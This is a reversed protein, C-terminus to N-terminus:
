YPRSPGIRARGYGRRQPHRAANLEDYLHPAYPPGTTGTRRGFSSALHRRTFQSLGAGPVQDLADPGRAPLRPDRHGDCRDQQHRQENLRHLLGRLEERLQDYPDGVPGDDREYSQAVRQDVPDYLQDVEGVAVVEHDAGEDAQRDEAAREEAQSKEAGYGVAGPSEQLYYPDDYGHEERHDDAAQQVHPYLPHGVFRQAVRRPERDEDRGDAHREHELIDAEHPLTGGLYRERVEDGVGVEQRCLRDDEPPLVEEDDRHRHWQEDDERVEYLLGLLALRHPGDGLVLLRRRHDPDVHVARDGDGEEQSADQGPGRAHHVAEEVADRDEVHTELLPEVGERRRDEPADAVEGPRHDPPEQDPDDPGHGVLVYADLPRRDHDEGHQDQHQHEPRLPEEAVARRHLPSSLLTSCSFFYPSGASSMTTAKRKGSTSSTRPVFRINGIIM